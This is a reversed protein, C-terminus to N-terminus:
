KVATTIYQAGIPVGTLYNEIFLFPKMFNKRPMFIVFENKVSDFGTKKMINKSYKPTLLVCDKDFECEAVVKRTIPNHPNHEWLYFKGGKKLVRRIEQLIQEHLSHDIHHFVCAAMCYDFTNDEFPLVTGNFSHFAPGSLQKENAVRISEQSIDVGDYTAKDSFYKLFYEGLTGDGCGFDLFKFDEMEANQKLWKIKFEAFYESTEGSIKISENHITRYNTAFEDFNDFENNKQKKKRKIM